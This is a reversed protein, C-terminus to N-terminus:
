MPISPNHSRKETFFVLCLFIAYAAVAVIALARHYFGLPALVVVIIWHFLIVTGSNLRLPFDDYRCVVALGNLNWGYLSILAHLKLLLKGGPPQPIFVYLLIYAIGTVATMILFVAGSTLFAKTQRPAGLKLYLFFIIVVTIFLVTAIALQAMVMGAIIFGFFAIVGLNVAWFGYEKLFRTWRDGREEMMGFMVSMTILSVPFSFGLFFIDLTLKPSSAIRWYEHNGMVLSSIVLGMSLCLLSAQHFKSSVPVSTMFFDKPFFSFRRSRITEVLLAMIVAIAIAYLYLQFFACLAFLLSLIYFAATKITFSKKRETYILIFTGGSCLNFLFIHLREFNYGAIFLHLFGFVLAATMTAILLLKIMRNM